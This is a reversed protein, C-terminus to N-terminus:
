VVASGGARHTKLRDSRAVHLLLDVDERLLDQRSARSLGLLDDILSAMRQAAGRVRRLHELDDEGLKDAADEIVMASFGDIARLPARLDHSVSYAFSALDQNAAELQATRSVVREELEANLRHVEEEALKRETTDSIIGHWLTGGDAM